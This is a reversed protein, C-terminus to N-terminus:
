WQDLMLGRHNGAAEGSALLGANPRFGLRLGCALGNTGDFGDGKAPVSLIIGAGNLLRSFEFTYVSRCRLTACLFLLACHSVNSAARCVSIICYCIRIVWYVNMQNIILISDMRSKM